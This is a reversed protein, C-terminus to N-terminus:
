CAVVAHAFKGVVFLDDVGSEDIFSDLGTPVDRDERDAQLAVEFIQLLALAICGLPM